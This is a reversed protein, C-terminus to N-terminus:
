FLRQACHHMRGMIVYIQHLLFQAWANAVMWMQKNKKIIISDTVNWTNRQCGLCINQQMSDKSCTSSGELFSIILVVAVFKPVTNNSMGVYSINSSDWWSVPWSVWESVWEGVSEWKCTKKGGRFQCIKWNRPIYCLSPKMAAVVSDM